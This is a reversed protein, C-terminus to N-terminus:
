CFSLIARDGTLLLTGGASHTIFRVAAPSQGVNREFQLPLTGYNTVHSKDAAQSITPVAVILTAAVLAVVISGSPFKQM